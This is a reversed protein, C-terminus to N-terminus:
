INTLFISDVTAAGDVGRHLGKVNVVTLGM